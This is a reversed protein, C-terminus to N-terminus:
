MAWESVQEAPCPPDSFLGAMVPVYATLDMSHDLHKAVNSLWDAMANKSREVHWFVLRCSMNRHLANISRLLTFLAPTGPKACSTCFSISLNSNGLVLVSRKARRAAVHRVGWELASMEGVNPGTVVGFQLAEARLLQGDPGWLM